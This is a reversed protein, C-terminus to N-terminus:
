DNDAFPGRAVQYRSEFEQEARRDLEQQIAQEERMDLGGGALRAQLESADEGALDEEGTEGTM